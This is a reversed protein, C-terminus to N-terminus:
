RGNNCELTVSREPSARTHRNCQCPLRSMPSTVCRTQCLVDYIAHTVHSVYESRYETTVSGPSPTTPPVDLLPRPTRTSRQSSLAHDELRNLFEALVTADIYKALTGFRLQLQRLTSDAHVRSSADVSCLPLPARLTYVEYDSYTERLWNSNCAEVANKLIKDVARKNQLCRSLRDVCVLLGHVCLCGSYMRQWCPEGNCSCEFDNDVIHVDETTKHTVCRDGDLTSSSLVYNDVHKQLRDYM